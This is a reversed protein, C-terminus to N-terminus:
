RTASRRGGCCPAAAASGRSWTSASGPDPASGPTWGRCHHEAAEPDGREVAHVAMTLAATERLDAAVHDACASDLVAGVARVRNIRAVGSTYQEGVAEATRRVRDFLEGALDFLGGRRVNLALVNWGRLRWVLRDEGAELEAAIDAIENLLPLLALEAVALRSARLAAAPAALGAATALEIADDLISRARAADREFWVLAEVFLAAIVVETEAM